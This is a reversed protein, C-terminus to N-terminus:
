TISMLIKSNSQIAMKRAASVLAISLLVKPRASWGFTCKALPCGKAGRATKVGFDFVDEFDLVSKQACSCFHEDEM